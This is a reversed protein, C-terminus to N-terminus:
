VKIAEASVMTEVIVKQNQQLLEILIPLSDKIGGYRAFWKSVIEEIRNDAQDMVSPPLDPIASVIVDALAEALEEGEPKAIDIVLGDAAEFEHWPFISLAAHVRRYMKSEMVNM